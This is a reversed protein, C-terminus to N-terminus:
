FARGSTPPKNSAIPPSMELMKNLPALAKLRTDEDVQIEPSLSNLCHYLKELTNLAMFPCQNCNCQGDAGPAGHEEITKEDYSIVRLASKSAGPLFTLTGPKAGVAAKHIERM